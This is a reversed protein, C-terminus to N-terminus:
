FELGAAIASSFTGVLFGSRLCLEALGIWDGLCIGFFSVAVFGSGSIVFVVSVGFNVVSGVVSCFVSVFLGIFLFNPSFVPLDVSVFDAGSFVAGSFTTGEM